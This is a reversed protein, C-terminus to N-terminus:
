KRNLSPCKSLSRSVFGLRHSLVSGIGVSSADCTLVLPVEPDFHALIKESTILLKADSFSEATEPGLGM